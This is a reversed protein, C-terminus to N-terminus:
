PRDRDGGPLRSSGRLRGDHATEKGGARAGRFAIERTEDGTPSVELPPPYQAAKVPQSHCWDGSTRCGVPLGHYQNGDAGPGGGGRPYGGIEESPHQGPFRSKENAEIDGENGGNDVTRPCEEM